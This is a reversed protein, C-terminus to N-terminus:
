PPVNLRNLTVMSLIPMSKVNTLGSQVGSSSFAANLGIVLATKGGGALKPLSLKIAHYPTLGADALPAADVPDADGLPVLNRAPVTMYEAYDGTDIGDADM